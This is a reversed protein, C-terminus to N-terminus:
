PRSAAADLAAKLPDIEAQVEPALLTTVPASGTIAKIADEIATIISPTAEALAVVFSVLAAPM